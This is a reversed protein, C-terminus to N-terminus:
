RLVAQSDLLFGDASVRYSKQGGTLHAAWDILCMDGLRM